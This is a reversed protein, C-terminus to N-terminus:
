LTVNETFVAEPDAPVAPMVVSDLVVSSQAGDISRYFAVALYYTGPAYAGFVANINTGNIATQYTAPVTTDIPLSTGVWVQVINAPHAELTLTPYQCFVSLNGNAQPATVVNQPPPIPLYVEGSPSLVIITPHSNQSICGYSDRFRPVVYLNQIGSGPLPWALNAPLTASFLAPAADFDPPGNAGVYILYGEASSNQIRYEGTEGLNFDLITDTNPSNITRFLSKATKFVKALASM